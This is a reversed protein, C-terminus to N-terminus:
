AALKIKNVVLNWRDSRSCVRLNLMNQAGRDSWRQGSKKMRDQVVTRHSAEIAGSGIHWGQEKYWKYDMRQGNQQYYRILKQKENVQEPSTPRLQRIADLVIPLQSGLLLEKQEEFWRRRENVNVILLRAVTALHESAHYFDLILTAKPFNLEVWNQFWKAGDGLFVLRECLGRHPEVLPLFKESFDACHGLHAAYQSKEIHNREKGQPKIDQGLFVRGVKVEQWGDDTFVMSGDAEAFVAGETAVPGVEPAELLDEAILKGYTDTIRYVQAASTSVRLLTELSHSAQSYVAMQGVLVVREQMYPSVKFGQVPQSFPHANSISM